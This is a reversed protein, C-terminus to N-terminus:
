GLATRRSEAWQVRLVAFEAFVQPGVQVLGDETEPRPTRGWHRHSQELASVREATLPVMIRSAPEMSLGQRELLGRSATLDIFANHTILAVGDPQLHAGLGVLLPEIVRRGDPGGDSWVPPHDESLPACLPFQPPNCVVLDFRQDGLREWLNSVHLQARDQLGLREMLAHGADVAEPLIDVGVFREVGAQLLGCMVVGGGIGIELAMRVPRRRLERLGVQLLAASYATPKFRPDLSM